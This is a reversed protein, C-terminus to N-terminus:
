IIFSSKLTDRQVLLNTHWTRKAWLSHLIRGIDELGYQSSLTDWLVDQGKTGWCDLPHNYFQLATLHNVGRCYEVSTFFFIVLIM